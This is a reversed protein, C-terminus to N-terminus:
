SAAGEWGVGDSSVRGMGLDKRVGVVDGWERDRGEAAIHEPIAQESPLAIRDVGEQVEDQLSYGLYYRAIMHGGHARRTVTQARHTAWPPAYAKGSLVVRLPLGSRVALWEHRGCLRGM